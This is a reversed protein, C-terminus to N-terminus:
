DSVSSQSLLPAARDHRTRRVPQDDCDTQTINSLAATKNFDITAYGKSEPVDVNLSNDNTAAAGAPPPTDSLGTRCLDLIIYNMERQSTRADTSDVSQSSLLSPRSRRPKPAIDMNMYCHDDLEEQDPLEVPNSVEPIGNDGTQFDIDNPNPAPTPSTSMERATEPSVNMYVHLRENNNMVNQIENAYSENTESNSLVGNALNRHGGENLVLNTYAGHLPSGVVSLRGEELPVPSSSNINGPIISSTLSQRMNSLVGISPERSRYPSAVSQTDSEPPPNPDEYLNENVHNPVSISHRNLSNYLSQSRTGDQQGNREQPPLIDSPFHQLSLSDRIERIARNEQEAATSMSQTRMQIANFLQGAHQSKFAYIGQGTPCRRGSEFTLM